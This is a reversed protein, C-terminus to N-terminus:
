AHAHRFVTKASIASISSMFSFSGSSSLPIIRFECPLAKPACLLQGVYNLTLPGFSRLRYVKM